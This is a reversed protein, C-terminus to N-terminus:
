VSLESFQLFISMQYDQSKGKHWITNKPYSPWFHCDSAKLGLIIQNDSFTEKKGGRCFVNVKPHRFRSKIGLLFCKLRESENLPRETHLVEKVSFTRLCLTWHLQSNVANKWTSALCLAKSGNTFNKYQPFHKWPSQTISKPFQTKKSPIM